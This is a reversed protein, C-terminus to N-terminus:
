FEVRKTRLSFTVEKGDVTLSSDDRSSFEDFWKKGLLLAFKTSQIKERVEVLEQKIKALIGEFIAVAVAANDGHLAEVDECEKIMALMLQEPGTHIKKAAVKAIVDPVKPLSSFGKIKIEFELAEYFDEAPLTETPPNFGNSTIGFGELYTKQGATFPGVATKDLQKYKGLFNRVVKQQAELKLEKVAAQALSKASTNGEAIKRNMVPVTDLKVSYIEGEQWQPPPPTLTSCKDAMIMGNSRLVDFTAKSMSLPLTTLNLIGDKVITYNRWIFTRYNKCFNQEEAKEDLTVTGEIRTRISLNLRSEHYVLDSLPCKSSINKKFEPYGEKTKAKRGIRQYEFSEDCPYFFANDDRVLLDIADKLCFADAPPLYNTHRGAIFRKSPTTVCDLINAEAVGYETNTFSNVVRDIVAIDGIKVLLDLALDTKTAQTLAYALAYAGKVFSDSTLGEATKGSFGKYEVAGEPVHTTLFYIFNEGQCPTYLIDNRSTNYYVIQDGNISFAISEPNMGTVVLTIRGSNERADRTFNHMRNSFEEGIRESHILSGGFLEAMSTMLQKNYYSGYGILLTSTIKSAVRSIASTIDAIEKNYSSVVPYGDTFFTLSNPLNNLATVEDIVENLDFLIESFCTTGRTTCNQDIIKCITAYDAPTSIRFGKVIFRYSGQGSFWGLTVTDGIPLTNVRKKMHDCLTQIVGYMSGSEDFLLYNNMSFITPKTTKTTFHTVNQEVFVLDKPGFKIYRSVPNM